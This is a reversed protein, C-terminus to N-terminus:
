PAAGLRAAGLVRTRPTGGTATLVLAYGRGDRPDPLPRTVDLAEGSWPGWDEVVAVVNTNLLRRGSNEGAGVDTRHERDYGFLTLRGSLGPSAAVVLRASGDGRADLTVPVAGGDRRHRDILATVASRDSGVAQDRGDVVMQPTYVYPLAFADRYDRQRRTNWGSAYPDRWGLRDWYDVHFSLAIVDDRGSLEKLFADAPPCSSCGQSTFLEVLVPAGAATAASVGAPRAIVPLALLAAALIPLIRPTM